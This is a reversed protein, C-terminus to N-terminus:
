ESLDQRLVSADVARSLVQESHAIKPWSLDCFHCNSLGHVEGPKTAIRVVSSPHTARNSIISFGGISDDTM